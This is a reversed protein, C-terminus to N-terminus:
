NVTTHGKKRILCELQPCGDTLMHYPRNWMMCVVLHLVCKNIRRSTVFM